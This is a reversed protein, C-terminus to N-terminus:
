GRSAPQSVRWTLADGGEAGVVREVEGRRGEGEVVRKGVERGRGSEREM